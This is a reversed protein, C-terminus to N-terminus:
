EATQRFKSMWSLLLVRRHAVATAVAATMATASLVSTGSRTSAAPNPATNANCRPTSRM